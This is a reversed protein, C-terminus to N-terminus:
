LSNHAVFPWFVHIIANKQDSDCKSRISLENDNIRTNNVTLELKYAFNPLKRNLLIYVILTKINSVSTPYPNQLKYSKLFEASQNYFLILNFCALIGCELGQQSYATSSYEMDRVTRIRPQETSHNFTRSQILFDFFRKCQVRSFYHSNAFSDSM